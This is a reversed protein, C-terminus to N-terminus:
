SKDIGWVEMKNMIVYNVAKIEYYVNYGIGLLIVANLRVNDFMYPGKMVISPVFLSKTVVKLRPTM